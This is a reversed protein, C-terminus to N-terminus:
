SAAGCPSPLNVALIRPSLTAAVAHLFCDSVSQQGFKDSCEHCLRSPLYFFGRMLRPKDCM